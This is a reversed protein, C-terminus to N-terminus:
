HAVTERVNPFRGPENSKARKGPAKQEIRELMANVQVLVAVIAPRFFKQRTPRIVGPYFIAAAAIVAYIWATVSDGEGGLQIDGTKIGTLEAQLTEIKALLAAIEAASPTVSPTVTTTM